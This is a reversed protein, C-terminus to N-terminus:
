SRESEQTLVLSIGSQLGYKLLWALSFWHIFMDRLFSCPIVRMLSPVPRDGGPSMDSRCEM